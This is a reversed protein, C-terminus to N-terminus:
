ENQLAQPPRENNQHILSPKTLSCGKKKERKRAKGRRLAHFPGCPSSEETHQWSQANWEGATTNGEEEIRLSPDLGCWEMAVLSTNKASGLTWFGLRKLIVRGQLTLLKRCPQKYRVNKKVSNKILCDIRKLNLIRYLRQWVQVNTLNM